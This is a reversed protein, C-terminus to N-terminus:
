ESETQLSEIENLYDKGSYGGFCFAKRSKLLLSGPFGRAKNLSPLREWKNIAIIYKDCTRLRNQNSYGGLAILETAIGSLSLSSKRCSLPELEESKGSYDFSFFDSLIYDKGNLKTQGGCVYLKRNAQFRASYDPFKRDFKLEERTGYTM